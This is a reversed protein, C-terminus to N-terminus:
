AADMFRLWGFARRTLMSVLENGPYTYELLFARLRRSMEVPRRKLV